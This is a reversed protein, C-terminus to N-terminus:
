MVLVRHDFQVTTPNDFFNRWPLSDGKRIYEPSLLENKANSITGHVTSPSFNTSSMELSKLADKILPMAHKRLQTNFMASVIQIRVQADKNEAYEKLLAKAGEEGAQAVAYAAQSRVNPNQDSIAKILAPLVKIANKGSSQLAIM